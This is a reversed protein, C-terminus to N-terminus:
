ASLLSARPFLSYCLDRRDPSDWPLPAPIILQKRSQLTSSVFPHPPFAEGPPTSPLGDTITPPSCPTRAATTASGLPAPSLKPSVTELASTSPTHQCRIVTDISKSGGRTCADQISSLRTTGGPDSCCSAAHSRAERGDRVCLPATREGKLLSPKSLGPPHPDSVAHSM